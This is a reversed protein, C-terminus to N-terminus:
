RFYDKSHEECKEDNVGSYGQKEIRDMWDDAFTLIENIQKMTEPKGDSIDYREYVGEGSNEFSQPIVKKNEYDVKFDIRPDYMLDGNQVYTQAITLIDSNMEVHLPMFCESEYKIYSKEGTMIEPFSDVLREFLDKQASDDTLEFQTLKTHVDELEAEAALLEQEKEFPKEVDIKMQELESKRMDNKASLDDITKQINNIANDLRVINGIDTSANLDCYHAKEGRLCAQPVRKFDNFMVSLTLRRYEGLAIEKGEMILGMNKGLAEKFAEGAEKRSTYTRGALTMPYAERGEEDMVKSASKATNLDATFHKIISANQKIENPYKVRINDQIEYLNENYRAKESKLDKIQAQLEMEKKILPNGACLAKVEAYDLSQEDIDSCVREPTKSTMVQSIFKQKNELIQYLYADFSKDTVYRFIDVEPNENGQREIRGTRQEMDSPRLPADLHHLAIMKAQANMGAGCKATSGLLVRIDGSNMQNFLAQKKEATDYDHIFAIEKEPVGLEVLKSRIDDYVNFPKPPMDEVPSMGLSDMLEISNDETFKGDTFVAARSEIITGDESPIRFVAIDGEQLKDEPEPSHKDVYSKIDAFSSIRKPSDEDGSGLGVKKRVLDYGSDKAENPSYIEFRDQRTDSKPTSMDCFILQTSRNPATKTYIDFVNQVCMNVKSNPNDPCGPQMLRQDLGIKRGDNTVCLMNDDKPDVSGDRIKGARKALSKILRKQIKSPQAVVEHVHAIPKELDLTDATRIDAAEKFMGMLEPLNTFKAFRTKLQYKGDSEPKLEYDTKVEGFDAAWEDFHNIDCEKLLDTQLYRMMTYLETMSNSVPTGSAFVMGKGGTLEDFYKTKMLLEAAKGSGTTGIGAVNSMKTATGLNKYLHCEDVFLKDFGMEEFDIYDDKAVKGQDDKIRKEYRAITREIEKVSFSKSGDTSRAEELESHLSDIEAQMYKEMREKSLGMRDFQSHGVIVADWEGTAIKAFLEKRNKPEFDKKTAVLINAAPYLKKFDRGMQETLSNPVAFLSKHHLGLRKGEMAITIMEYSKGAGVCHALMTNGGYLARAVANKQHEKLTIDSNMGVFNLHSGDYERHRISNFVENYKDVLVTRRDPDKFIWDQWENEIKRAMSQVAKTEEHNTVKVINDRSDRVPNGYEDLKPDKVTLDEHNLIGELIAYADKRRTGFDHTATYSGKDSKSAGEIKWKGSAKSYQATVDSRWSPKFKENIFKTVFEPDVWHSGLKVSIDKAEVKKPMAAELAEKHRSVDMGIPANNLERLKQRINGTLYEDATVYKEEEQPLRYIQGELENILTDKDMGCLETMYDFDVKAREAVSLILAEQATEVHEVVSNPKVTDHYFIDAKTYEGSDKDRAELAILFSYGDDGKFLRSNKKDDFHGYKATFSDYLQNLKSRMVAINSDLSHDANDLQMDLLERVTDRIEVMALARKLGDGSLNVKKMYEDDTRYYISSDVAYYSYTRSNAPASIIEEAEKKKEATRARPTYSGHINKVAESLQTKLDAGEIPLVQTNETPGYMQNAEAITGLVMEPHQVFYNNVSFGDETTGKSLWEMEEPKIEIPRERKQFFLIDSTVETGANKKFADNPLRIAGLLEARQAIYTRMEPNEKDMTGKSTVVALVGGPRVKDISKAVFYDHIYFKHKNYDKDDVKYDGFPVNGVVADFSDNEFKTKEFGKIQIDADPYLQKAIRGTLSDLEVGHLESKRMNESMVGFFNGIGMAPELIKGSEFGINKLGEYIASIIVPSTFHANMTSRRAAMYEDDTLLEKLQAYENSWDKNDSDFAQPIAGWGTYGSLVAQEVPTATRNESEINNLTRIAEVNAVFRAKPTKVGLNEDTIVFNQSNSANHEPPVDATEETAFHELPVDPVAEVFESENEEVVTFGSALFDSIDMRSTNGLLNETETFTIVSGSIDSITLLEDNIDILDGIKPTYDNTEKEPKEETPANEKEQEKTPNGLFVGNEALKYRDINQTALFAIGGTQEEYSVTVDDPYIGKDPAVTYERDNYLFVDGVEVDNGSKKRGTDAVSASQKEEARGHVKEFDMPECKEIDYGADKMVVTFAQRLTISVDDYVGSDTVNYDGDYFTYDYSDDDREFMEAYGANPIMFALRDETAEFEFLRGELVTTKGDLDTVSISKDSDNRMDEFFEQVEALMGQRTITTDGEDYDPMDDAEYTFEKYRNILFSSNLNGFSITNKIHLFDDPQDKRRDYEETLTIESLKSLDIKQKEVEFFLDTVDAMGFSDVYFASSVNSDELVIVDGVSLSQGRFDEPQDINFKTYINDLIVGRGQSRSVDSVYGGYVEEYNNKDFPLNFKKLENWSNFSLRSYEEGMKVQYISYKPANAREAREEPTIYTGNELATMVARSVQEWSYESLDSLTIKNTAASYGDLGFGQRDSLVLSQIYASLEEASPAKSNYYEEIMFKGPHHATLKEALIDAADHSAEKDLLYFEEAWETAASLTSFGVSESSVPIIREGTDYEVDYGNNENQSIWIFRGYTDSNVEAAWSTPKGTEEDISEPIEKWLLNEPIEKEYGKERVAISFGASQANILDSRVEDISVATDSNDDSEWAREIDNSNTSYYFILKDDPTQVEIHDIERMDVDIGLDPIVLHNNRNELEIVADTGISYFEDFNLESLVLENMEELSNYKEAKVLEENLTYSIRFSVLDIEMQFGYENNKGLETYGASIHELDDFEAEDDGAFESALYSRIYEKAKELQIDEQRSELMEEPTEISYENYELSTTYESKMVDDLHKEIFDAEDYSATVSENDLAGIMCFEVSVDVEDVQNASIYDQYRELGHIDYKDVYEPVVFRNDGDITVVSFTISNHELDLTGYIEDQEQEKQEPALERNKEIYSRVTDAFLNVLGPHATLYYEGKQRMVDDPYNELFANAWAKNENSIRGDWNKDAINVASVLAIREIPYKELLDNLASESDLSNDNYHKSIFADTMNACAHNENRSARYIDLENLERAESLSKAYVPVNSFATEEQKEEQHEVPVNEQKIHEKESREHSLLIRDARDQLVTLVDDYSNASENKNWEQYIENLVNESSLLAKIQEDTLDLEENEAYTRINDKTNIEYASSIIVEPKQNMLNSVFFNYEASLRESLQVDLPENSIELHELPVNENPANESVTEESIIEEFDSVDIGNDSAYEEAEHRSEFIPVDGNTDTYVNREDATTSNSESIYFADETKDIRYASPHFFENNVDNYMERVMDMNRFGVTEGTENNRINVFGNTDALREYGARFLENIIDANHINDIMRNVMEANKRGSVTITASNALIRGSFRISADGSLLNAVQLATEPDTNIFSRDRIKSYEINGIIRQNNQVTNKYESAIAYARQADAKSVTVTNRYSGYTASFMIDEARLRDMVKHINEGNLGIYACNGKISNYYEKNVYETM